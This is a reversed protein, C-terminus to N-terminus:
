GATGFRFEIEGLMLECLARTDADDSEDRRKIRILQRAKGPDDPWPVDRVWRTLAEVAPTRTGQNGLLRLLVARVDGAPQRSEPTRPQPQTAPAELRGEDADPAVARRILNGDVRSQLYLVPTGFQRNLQVGLFLQNRALQVAEGIREGAALREYISKVFARGKRPPMPYQMALVAPIDATVFAPALQEFHESPDQDWDSLHLVVLTPRAARESTLTDVVPQPDDWGAGGHGDPLYLQPRGGVDKCLAVLHVVDVHHRRDRFGRLRTVVEAPDWEDVPEIELATVAELEAQLERIEQREATFDETTPLCVVFLVRVKEDESCRIESEGKGAVFRGLVLNTETALYFAPDPCRVFEWPLAALDQAGDEFVLRVRIRPGTEDDSRLQDRRAQTLREGPPGDLALQWLHNGLIKFTDPVLLSLARSSTLRPQSTIRGRQELDAIREWRKLWQELVQITELHSERRIVGRVENRGSDPSDYVCRVEAGDLTIRFDYGSM